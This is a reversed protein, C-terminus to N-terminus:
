RTVEDMVLAFWGIDVHIKNAPLSHVFTKEPSHPRIIALDLDLTITGLVYVAALGGDKYFPREWTINVWVTKQAERVM